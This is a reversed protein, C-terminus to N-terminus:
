PKKPLVPAGADVWAKLRKLEDASVKTKEKRPPMENYRIMEIMLSKAANGPLIAPGSIGGKLMADRTRLDLKGDRKRDGHCRNCKAELIPLIETQFNPPKSEPPAPEATAAFLPLLVLLALLLGVSRM